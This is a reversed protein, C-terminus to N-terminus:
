LMHGMNLDHILDQHIYIENVLQMPTGMGGGNYKRHNCHIVDKAANYGPLM